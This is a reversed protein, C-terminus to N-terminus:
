PKPPKPKDPDSFDNESATKIKSTPADAAFILGLGGMIGGISTTLSEETWDGNKIAFVLRITGGIVATIGLSPTKWNSLLKKM